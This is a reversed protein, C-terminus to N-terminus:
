ASATTRGRTPASRTVHNGIRCSVKLRMHAPARARRRQARPANQAIARRPRVGLPQQEQPDRDAREFQQDVVDAVLPPEDEQNGRRTASALRTSARPLRSAASAAGHGRRATSSSDTREHEIRRRRAARAASAPATERRPRHARSSIGTRSAAGARDHQRDAITATHGVRQANVAPRRHLGRNGRGHEDPTTRPTSGRGTRRTPRGVPAVLVVLRRSASPRASGGPVSTWPLSALPSASSFRIRGIKM